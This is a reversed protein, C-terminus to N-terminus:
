NSRIRHVSTSPHEDGLVRRKAAVTQLFLDEAEDFRNLKAYVTALNHM